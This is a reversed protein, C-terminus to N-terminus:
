LSAYFVFCITQGNRREIYVPRHASSQISLWAPCLRAQRESWAERCPHVSIWHDVQGRARCLIPIPNAHTQHMTPAPTGHRNDFRGRRCRIARRRPRTPMSPVQAIRCTRANYCGQNAARIAVQM